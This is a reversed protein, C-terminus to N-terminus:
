EPQQTRDNQLKLQVVHGRKENDRIVTAHLLVVRLINIETEANIGFSIRMAYLAFSCSSSTKYKEM